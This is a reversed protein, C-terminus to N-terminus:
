PKGRQQDLAEVMTQYLPHHRLKELQKQAEEYLGYTEYGAVLALDSKGYVREMETVKRLSEEKLVLFKASSAKRQGTVTVKVEWSYLTGQQLTQVNDPLPFEIEDQDVNRPTVWDSWVTKNGQDVNRLILRYQEVDRVRKWRFTPRPSKVVTAVPSLLIPANTRDEGNGMAKPTAVMEVRINELPVIGKEALALIQESLASASGEQQRRTSVQNLRGQVTELGTRVSQLRGEQREVRSQVDRVGSQLLALQQQVTHLSEQVGQVSKLTGEQGEMRSQVAQMGRQLLALQQGASELSQQLDRVVQPSVAAQQMPMQRLARITYIQGWVLLGL